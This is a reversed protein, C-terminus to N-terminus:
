NNLMIYLSGTVNQQMKTSAMAGDPSPALLLMAFGVALMCAAVAHRLQDAMRMWLRKAEPTKAREAYLDALVSSPDQGALEALKAALEDNPHSRGSQWNTVASNVVGLTQALRYDSEIGQAKKARAILQKTTQM